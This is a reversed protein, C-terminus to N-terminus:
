KFRGALFSVFTAAGVAIVLGILADIVTQRAKSTQEPQGQSSIFRVGGYLVFAIAVLVAIRLLIEIVAAVILWVDNLGTIKPTCVTGGVGLSPEPTIVGHLYKYWKPLGFFDGGPCQQVEQAFRTFLNFIM